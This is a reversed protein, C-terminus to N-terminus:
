VAARGQEPDIKLGGGLAMPSDAEQLQPHGLQGKVQACLAGHGTWRCVSFEGWFDVPTTPCLGM